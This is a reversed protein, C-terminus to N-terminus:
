NWWQHHNGFHIESSGQPIFGYPVVAVWKSNMNQLPVIPNTSFSDRPAVLTIGSVKCGDELPQTWLQASCICFLVVIFYLKM